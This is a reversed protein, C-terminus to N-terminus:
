TEHLPVLANVSGCLCVKLRKEIKSPGAVSDFMNYFSNTLLMDLVSLVAFFSTAAGRALDPEIAAIVALIAPIINLAL